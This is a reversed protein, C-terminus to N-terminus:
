GPVVFSRSAWRGLEPRALFAIELGVAERSRHRGRLAGGPGDDERQGYGEGDAMFEVQAWQTQAM